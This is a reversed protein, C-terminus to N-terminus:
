DQKLSVPLLIKRSHSLTPFLKGLCEFGDLPMMEGECTGYGTSSQEKSLTLSSILFVKVMMPQYAGRLYSM